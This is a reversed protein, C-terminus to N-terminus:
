FLHVCLVLYNPVPDIDKVSSVSHRSVTIYLYFTLPFHDYMLVGPVIPYHEFEPGQRRYSVKGGRTASVGFGGAKTWWRAGVEARVPTARVRLSVATVDAARGGKPSLFKLSNSDHIYCYLSDTFCYLSDTFCYLSINKFYRQSM